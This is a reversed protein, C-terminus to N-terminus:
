IGEVESIYNDIQGVFESKYENLMFILDDKGGEAISKKMTLRVFEDISESTWNLTSILVNRGQQYQQENM